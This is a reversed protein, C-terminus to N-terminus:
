HETPLSRSRPDTPPEGTPHDRGLQDELWQGTMALPLTGTRIARGLESGRQGLVIDPHDIARGRLRATVVELLRPFRDALPAPLLFGVLLYAAVHRVQNPSAPDASWYRQAFGSQGFDIRLRRRPWGHTLDWETLVSVLDVVFQWRAGLTQGVGTARWEALEVLAALDTRRGAAVEAQLQHALARLTSM